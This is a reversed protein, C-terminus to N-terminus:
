EGSRYALNEFRTWEGKFRAKVTGVVGNRQKLLIVEAIGPEKTDKHYYEDRYLGIIVDGDQEIAGSDRLDGLTPRQNSRNEPGRNLQSLLVVALRLEKALAKLENTILAVERDRSLNAKPSSSTLLQLYDIVVLGLEEGTPFAEKDRKWKRLQAGLSEITQRSDNIWIPRERLRRTSSVLRSWDRSELLGSRMLMGDVRGDSSLLRNGIQRRGMEASIFMTPHQHETGELVCDVAFATKGMSPRGAVIILDTEQWGSTMEDLERLMTPIGTVVRKDRYRRELEVISEQLVARIHLAGGPTAGDALAALQQQAKALVEQSSERDAYGAQMLRDGAFALQRLLSKDRIIAAHHEIGEWSAVKNSLEALYAEEGSAVLKTMTGLRRMENAVGILDIREGRRKLELMAAYIAERRSDYFDRPGIVSLVEEIAEGHLLLAGIVSEEADEDRPLTRVATV